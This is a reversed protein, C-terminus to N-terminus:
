SECELGVVRGGLMLMSLSLGWRRRRLRRSLV